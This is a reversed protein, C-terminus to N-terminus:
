YLRLRRWLRRLLPIPVPPILAGGGRGGCTFIKPSFGLGVGVGEENGEIGTYRWSLTFNVHFINDIAIKQRTTENSAQYHMTVKSVNSWKIGM